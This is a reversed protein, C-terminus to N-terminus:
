CSKKCHKKLKNLHERVRRRTESDVLINNAFEELYKAREDFGKCNRAKCDGCVEKLYTLERLIKALGEPTFKGVKMIQEIEKIRKAWDDTCVYTELCNKLLYALRAKYLNYASKTLQITKLIHRIRDIREQVNGECTNEQQRLKLRGEVVCLIMCIVLCAAIKGM